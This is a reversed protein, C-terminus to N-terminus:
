DHRDSETANYDVPEALDVIEIRDAPYISLPEFVRERDTECVPEIEQVAGDPSEYLINGNDLIDIETGDTAFFVPLQDAYWLCKPLWDGDLRVALRKSGLEAIARQDVEGHEGDALRADDTM